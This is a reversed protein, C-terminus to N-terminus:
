KLSPKDKWMELAEEEMFHLDKAPVILAHPPKGFDFGLLQKATGANITPNPSGLRATGIVLTNQTFVKQKKKEELKLLIDIADNIGMFREEMPSLDLLVLTHLGHKQNEKMVNYPTEVQWFDEFFPISTTKGFKYLQLGTIGVATLISANNTVTVPINRKKAEIFLNIHTTASFPDGIVLFATDYEKANSLIQETRNEVLERDALIISRKYLKELTEKKTNLVSTYNELYVVKCKKVTNLGKLTIDNEDNLGLGILHLTM